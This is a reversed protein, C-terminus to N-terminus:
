LVVLNRMGVGRKVKGKEELKKIFLRATYTSNVHIRDAIERVSPPVGAHEAQLAIIAALTDKERPTLPKTNLPQEPKKKAMGM